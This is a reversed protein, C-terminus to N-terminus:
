LEADDHLPCSGKYGKGNKKLEIGRSRIVEVPDVTSKIRDIRAQSLM